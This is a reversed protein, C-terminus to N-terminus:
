GPSGLNIQLVTKIGVCSLLNLAGVTGLTSTPLFSKRSRNLKTQHQNNTTLNIKVFCTYVTYNTELNDFVVLLRLYAQNVDKM